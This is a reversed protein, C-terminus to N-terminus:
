MVPYNYCYTTIVNPLGAQLLTTFYSLVGCYLLSYALVILSLTRYVSPQITGGYIIIIIIYLTVLM